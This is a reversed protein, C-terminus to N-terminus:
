VLLVIVLKCDTAAHPQHQSSLRLLRTFRVCPPRVNQIRCCVVPQVTYQLSGAGDARKTRPTQARTRITIEREDVCLLSDISAMSSSNPFPALPLLITCRTLAESATTMRGASVASSQKLPLPQGHCGAIDVIDPQAIALADGCLCLELPLFSRYRVYSPARPALSRYARQYHQGRREHCHTVLRLSHYLEM